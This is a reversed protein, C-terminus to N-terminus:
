PVEGEMSGRTWRGTEEGCRDCFAVAIREGGEERRDLRTETREGCNACERLMTLEEYSRPAGLALAVVCEDGHNWGRQFEGPAFRIVERPGVDVEGAETEFTATGERVYFVEEQDGHCHYAFGFSDGPELEYYNIALDSLGLAKTLRRQVAAPQVTSDVDDIRVKEM